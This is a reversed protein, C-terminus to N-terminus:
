LLLIIVALAGGVSLTRLLKQAGPLSRRGERLTEELRSLCLDCRRLEEETYGRGFARSFEALAAFSRQDLYLSPRATLLATYLDGGSHALDLGARSLVESEHSALIEERPTRFCAIEERVRRVLLIFAETQEIGERMASSSRVALILASLLIAASGIIKYIM